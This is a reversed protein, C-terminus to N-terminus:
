KIDDLSFVIGRCYKEGDEIINFMAHPINTEFIWSYDNRGWIAKITKATKRRIFFDELETDNDISDRSPLLGKSDVFATTGGYAGLEDYIAGEFEMLDDSAGYVIVLREAKAALIIEARIKPPYEMGDLALALQEKSM